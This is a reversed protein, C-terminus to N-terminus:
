CLRQINFYKQYISLLATVARKCRCRGRRSSCYSVSDMMSSHRQTPTEDPREQSDAECLNTTFRRQPLHLTNCQHGSHSPGSGHTSKWRSHFSCSILATPGALLLGSDAEKRTKMSPAKAKLGAAARTSSHQSCRLSPQRNSHRLLVRLMMSSRFTRSRHPKRRVMMIRLSISFSAKVVASFGGIVWM